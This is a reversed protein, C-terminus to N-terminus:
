PRQPQRNRWYGSSSSPQPSPLVMVPYAKTSGFAGTALQFHAVAGTGAVHWTALQEVRPWLWRYRSQGMTFEILPLDRTGYKISEGQLTRVHKALLKSPRAFIIWCGILIACSLLMIDM